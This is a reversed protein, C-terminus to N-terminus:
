AKKEAVGRAKASNFAEIGAWLVKANLDGAEARKRIEEDTMKALNIKSITAPKTKAM